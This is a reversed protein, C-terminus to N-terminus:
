TSKKDAGDFGEPLLPNFENQVSLFAPELYPYFYTAGISSIPETTDSNSDLLCQCKVITPLYKRGM